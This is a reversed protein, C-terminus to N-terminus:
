PKPAVLNFRARADAYGWGGAISAAVPVSRILKVLDLREVHESIKVVHHALHSLWEETMTMVGCALCLCALTRSWKSV